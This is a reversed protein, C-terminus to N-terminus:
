SAPEQQAERNLPLPVRLNLFQPEVSPEYDAGEGRCAGCNDAPFPRPNGGVCVHSKM